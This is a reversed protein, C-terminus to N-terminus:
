TLHQLQHESNSSDTHTMCVAFYSSICVNFGNFQFDTIGICGVQYVILHSSPVLPKNRILMDTAEYTLCGPISPDIGLDAFLCDEASIGPLMTATYGEERALDISRHSPSVFVGPHGYFLGVVNEGKRVHM